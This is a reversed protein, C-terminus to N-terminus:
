IEDEEEEEEEKVKVQVEKDKKNMQKWKNRIKIQRSMKRQLCVNKEDLGVPCFLQTVHLM